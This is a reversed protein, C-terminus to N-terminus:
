VGGHPDMPLDHGAPEEAPLPHVTHQDHGGAGEADVHEDWLTIGEADHAPVTDLDPHVDLWPDTHAAEAFSPHAAGPDTGDPLGDGDLHPALAAAQGHGFWLDAHDGADHHADHDQAPDHSDHDTVGAVHGALHPVDDLVSHQDALDHHVAFPDDHGALDAADPHVPEPANALLSFGDHVDAPPYPHGGSAPVASNAVVFPSLHEAVEVPAADAYNVIAETLLHGPLDGHGAGALAAAPDAPGHSMSAFIDRLSRAQEMGGDM